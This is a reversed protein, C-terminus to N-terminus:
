STILDNLKELQEHATPEHAASLKWVQGIEPITPFIDTPLEFEREGLRVTTVSPHVIVITVRM